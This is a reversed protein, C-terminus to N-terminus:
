PQKERLQLDYIQIDPSRWDAHHEEIPLCRVLFGAATFQEQPFPLKPRHENALLVRTHKGSLSILTTILDSICEEQYIVDSALILDFPPDLADVSQGWPLAAAVVKSGVGNLAINQELLPLLHSLDTVIVSAAGLHAAAM